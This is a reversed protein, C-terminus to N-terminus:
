GRPMWDIFSLSKPTNYPIYAFLQYAAEPISCFFTLLGSFLGALSFGVYFLVPIMYGMLMNVFTSLKPCLRQGYLYGYMCGKLPAFIGVLLILGACQLRYAPTVRPRKRKQM